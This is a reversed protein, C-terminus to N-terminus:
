SQEREQKIAAKIEDQTVIGKGLAYFALLILNHICTKNSIKKIHKNIGSDSINLEHSIQTNNYGQALLRLVEIERDTLTTKRTGKM